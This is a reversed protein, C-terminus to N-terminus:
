LLFFLSFWRTLVNLFANRRQHFYLVLCSRNRPLRQSTESLEIVSEKLQIIPEDKESSNCAFLMLFGVLIIKM